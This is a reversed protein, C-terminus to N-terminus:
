EAPNTATRLDTIKERLIAVQTRLAERDIEVRKIISESSNRITVASTHVDKLNNARKEIDLMAAEISEFDATQCERQRQSYFCMARALELGATLFADSAVDTADWVIVTDNGFRSLPPLEPPAMQRSYVFVGVQAMRNKRANEIEDLATKLSYNQEEKAEFVIRARPAASDPGLTVVVDGWKRNKVAGVQDGTFEAVDGRATSHHHLFEFMASQFTGGHLTSRAREERRATLERLAGKVEEQFEANTRVHAELVTMLERKLRSLCSTESNLSFEDTITRQAKTVNQVLRSLASDDDNLSFEKVVVDIKAQIDKSLDGHKGTLENVLRKLAGDDTDLSFERLIRDRQDTLQLDVTQKLVALFGNSEGPKLQRMLPSDSGVHSLLTRSLQSNEGDIQGKLLQALEGDQGVLRQVRDSFRGDQPDFYEKLTAGLQHQVTQKHQELTQQMDKVLRLSERHILDATAQGGVHRLALVGIKLAELAYRNREEGEPYESLAAVVDRDTVTLELPVPFDENSEFNPARRSPPKTATSTAQAFPDSM